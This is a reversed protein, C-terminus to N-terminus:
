TSLRALLLAVNFPKHLYDTAGLEICRIASDLEDVATIMIVPLERLAPDSKIAALVEYGDLRPMLVDLLVLDFTDPEARLLELAAEGDAAASTRHGLDALARALLKRNVLNDDVILVHSM